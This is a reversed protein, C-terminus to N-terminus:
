EFVFRYSATTGATGEWRPGERLLRVAEDKYAQPADGKPNFDTLRGDAQLTFRVRVVQKPRPHKDAEPHRLSNSVYQKFQKFGGVPRLSEYPPQEDTAQGYGVVVVESLSAENEALEVNVKDNGGLTVRLPNYGTYSFELATAGAPLTLSYTGDVNTVAGTNTGSVVVSVGILPSGNGDTVQGTIQRAAYRQKKSAKAMEEKAPASSPAVAVDKAKDNVGSNGKGAGEQKAQSIAEAKRRVETELRMKAELEAKNLEEQALANEDAEDSELQKNAEAIVPAPANAQPASPIPKSNERSPKEKATSANPQGDLLTSEQEALEPQISDAMASTAETATAPEMQVADAVAAKDGSAFQQVVLWAVVVVALAAAARLLYFGTGRQRQTRKRLGAKLRTLDAAHNAEPLARYGEIADALFPDSQAAADLVREDHRNADGNLWRLLPTLLSKNRKESEM